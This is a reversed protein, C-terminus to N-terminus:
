EEERVESQRNSENMESTINIDGIPTTKRKQHQNHTITHLKQETTMENTKNPDDVGITIDDQENMTMKCTKCMNMKRIM